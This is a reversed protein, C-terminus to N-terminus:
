KTRSSQISVLVIRIENLAQILDLNGQYYKDVIEKISQTESDKADYVKQTTDNLEKMLAKRDIFLFVVMAFLIAIIAGAGGQTLLNLLTNAIDM